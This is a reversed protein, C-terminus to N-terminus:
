ADVDNPLWSIDGFLMMRAVNRKQIVDNKMTTDVNEPKNELIFDLDKVALRLL